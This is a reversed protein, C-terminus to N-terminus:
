AGMYVRSCDSLTYQIRPRPFVLDFRWDCNDPNHWSFGAVPLLKIDDRSLYDVGLVWDLKPNVHLIGVGHSPFRVGDRASDEFDSYVGISSAIDVSLMDNLRARKQYGLVFDYLRPPLAVSNPGSLLHINFGTTVGSRYGRGVYPTSQYSLWGFQEGDGPMYSLSTEDSQYNHYPTPAYLSEVDMKQQSRMFFPLYGHDEAALLEEESPDDLFAERARFKRVSPTATSTDTAEYGESFPLPLRRSPWQLTPGLHNLSCIKLFTAPSAFQEQAVFRLPASM